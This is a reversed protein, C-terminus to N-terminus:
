EMGVKDHFLYGGALSFGSEDSINDTTVDAKEFSGRVYLDGAQYAMAQGTFTVGAVAVATLLTLKRM